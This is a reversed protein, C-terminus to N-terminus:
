VTVLLRYTVKLYEGDQVTVWDVEETFVDRIILYPYTGGNYTGNLVVIGYEKVIVEGGSVNRFIREIDFYSDSGDVTVEGIAGGMYELDNDPDHYLREHLTYTLATNEASGDGVLIGVDDGFYEQVMHYAYVRGNGQVMPLSFINTPDYVSNNRTNGEIDIANHSSISGMNRYLLHLFNKVFSKSVWARSSTVGKEPHITQVELHLQFM